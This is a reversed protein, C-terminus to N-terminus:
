ANNQCGLQCNPSGHKVFNSLMLVPKELKVVFTQIQSLIVSPVLSELPVQRDINLFLSLYYTISFVAIIFM